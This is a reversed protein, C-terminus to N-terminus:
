LIINSIYFGRGRHVVLDRKRRLSGKEGPNRKLVDMNRRGVGNCKWNGYRDLIAHFESAEREIILQEAVFRFKSTAMESRKPDIFRTEEFRTPEFYDHQFM